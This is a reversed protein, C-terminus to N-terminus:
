CCFRGVGCQPLAAPQFDLVIGCQAATLCQTGALCRFFHPNVQLEESQTSTAAPDDMTTPSEVGCGIGCVVLASMLLRKM